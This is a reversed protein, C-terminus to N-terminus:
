NEVFRYYPADKFELNVLIPQIENEHFYKTLSEHMRMKEEIDSATKGLFLRWGEETDWGFGNKFTYILPEGDPVYSGMTVITNLTERSFYLPLDRDEQSPAGPYSDAYVHITSEQSRSENLVKGDKDIWFSSGGFDWEVVAIRETLAISMQAPFDIEVDADYIDQYHQMLTTRIQEPDVTFVPKNKAGTYYIMEAQNIKAMGSIQIDDFRFQPLFAYGASLGGFILSFIGSVWRAANGKKNKKNRELYEETEQNRTNISQLKVPEPKKRAEKENRRERIRRLRENGKDNLENM